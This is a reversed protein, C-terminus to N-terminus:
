EVLKLGVDRNPYSRTKQCKNSTESTNKGFTEGSSNMPRIKQMQSSPLYKWRNWISLHQLNRWLGSVSPYKTSYIQQQETSVSNRRLFRQASFCSSTENRGDLHISKKRGEKSRLEGRLLVPPVFYSRISLFKSENRRGNSGM